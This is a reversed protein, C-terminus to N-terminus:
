EPKRYQLPTVGSLKKFFKNFHSPDAFNLHYGIEAVSLDTHLILAKAELLLMEEILEHATKGTEKKIVKNLHNSSIHLMDAYETVKRKNIFYQSVSKKYRSLLVHEANESSTASPNLKNYGRNAQILLLHILLQITQQLAADNIKLEDNIKFFLQQIEAAEKNELPFCPRGSYNLFPFDDRIKKLSVAGAIFEESFLMYYAFFDDSKDHLSFVQGPFTFVIEGPQLHFTELGCRVHVNGRICFGIRFFESKIPGIAPKLGASSYLGFGGCILQNTNDLGFESIGVREKHVPYFSPNLKYSAIDGTTPKM